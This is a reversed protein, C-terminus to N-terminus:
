GFLAREPAFHSATGGIGTGRLCRLDKPLYQACGLDSVACVLKQAAFDYSVLINALKM